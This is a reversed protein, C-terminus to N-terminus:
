KLCFLSFSVSFPIKAHKHAREAHEAHKAPDLFFVRSVDVGAEGTGRARLSSILAHLRARGEKEPLNALAADAAAAVGASAKALSTAPM